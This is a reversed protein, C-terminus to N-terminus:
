ARTATEVHNSRGDKKHGWHHLAITEEPLSDRFSSADGGASVRSWHIPNFTDVPFVHLRDPLLAAMDTLLAPGTTQVMEATPDTFYRGPLKSLLRSWFINRPRPAGIAANVIRGDTVNEYSAWAKDPLSPLPRIPEMDCNVYVGGYRHVIAYGMIDAMQVYLEIGQRGADREYLSQFVKSLHPYESIDDESWMRVEWGPNLRAWKEGFEAYEEPFEKPGAWFRHIVQVPM